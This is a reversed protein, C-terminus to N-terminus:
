APDSETIAKALPPRGRSGLPTFRMTLGQDLVVALRDSMEELVRKVAPHTQVQKWWAAIQPRHDFPNEGGLGPLLRAFFFAPVLACDALTFSVGAAFPQGILLELQDLRSSLEALYYDLAKQNRNKQNLEDALPDFVAFIYLDLFRALTQVRAREVPTSPVLPPEPYLAELFECIVQSEHVIKGDVELAPVKGIITQECYDAPAPTPVDVLEIPLNKAYIQIRCRAAFPSLARDYLRMQAGPNRSPTM